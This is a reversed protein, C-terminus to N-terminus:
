RRLFLFIGLIAVAGLVLYLVLQNGSENTSVTAAAKTAVKRQDTISKAEKLNTYVDAGRSILNTLDSVYSFLGGESAGAVSPEGASQNSSIFLDALEIPM